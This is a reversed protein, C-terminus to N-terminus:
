RLDAMVSAIVAVAIRTGGSPRDICGLMSGRLVLGSAAKRDSFSRASVGGM